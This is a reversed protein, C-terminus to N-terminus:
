PDPPPAPFLISADDQAGHLVHLVDIRDTGVRYLIVYERYPRRRIGTNENGPLFPFGKPTQALRECREILEAAFRAARRPDGRASYDGISELDAEAEATLAVIM